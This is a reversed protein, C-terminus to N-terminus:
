LKFSIHIHDTNKLLKAKDAQSFPGHKVRSKSICIKFGNEFAIIIDFIIVRFFPIIIVAHYLWVNCQPYNKAIFRIYWPFNWRCLFHYSKHISLFWSLTKQKLRKKSWWLSLNRCQFIIFQHSNYKSILLPPTIESYM